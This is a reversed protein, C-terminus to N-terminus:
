GIFSHVACSMVFTSIVFRLVIDFGIGARIQLESLEGVRAPRVFDRGGGKMSGCIPHDLYRSVQLIFVMNICSIKRTPVTKLTSGSGQSVDGVSDKKIKRTGVFMAQLLSIVVM